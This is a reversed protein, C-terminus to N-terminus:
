SIFLKSVYVLAYAGHTDPSATRERVESGDDRKKKAAIGERVIRPAIAGWVNFHHPNEHGSALWDARIDELQFEHHDKAFERAFQIFEAKWKEPENKLAQDQGAIALAKATDRPVFANFIDKAVEQFIITM